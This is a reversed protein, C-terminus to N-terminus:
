RQKCRERLLLELRRGMQRVLDLYFLAIMEDVLPAKSVLEEEDLVAFGVDDVVARHDGLETGAIEEALDRKDFGLTPGRRHDGLRRHIEDHDEARVEAQEDGIQRGHLLLDIRGDFLAAGLEVDSLRGSTPNPSGPQM